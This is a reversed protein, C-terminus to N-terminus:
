GGLGWFRAIRRVACLGGDNIYAAESGCPEPAGDADIPVAHPFAEITWTELRTEGAADHYLHRTAGGYIESADPLADIGQLSAWQETLEQLNAPDVTEDGLGQWISVRPWTEPLVAAAEQVFGAWDAPSRDTATFFRTIGCAYSADAGDQAFVNYHLTYWTFDFLGVPRNCGYPLGAIIAGGAFRDPHNALMVASMAGGASLGLVYVRAADASETALVHDIMQLISASEGLGPQNDDSDFWRFCGREMNDERQQPLLLLAGLDEALAVLGTEDDFGEASMLCGHLAVILPAPTTLESGQAEPRYLFADLAGPNDGFDGLPELARAPTLSLPLALCVPLVLSLMRSLCSMRADKLFPVFRILSSEWLNGSIALM